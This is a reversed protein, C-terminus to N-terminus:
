LYRNRERQKWSKWYKIKSLKQLKKSFYTNKEKMRKSRVQGQKKENL